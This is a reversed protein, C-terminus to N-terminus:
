ISAHGTAPHYTFGDSLANAIIAKINNCRYRIKLRDIHKLITGYALNLETAIDRYAFSKHCVKAGTASTAFCTQKKHEQENYYFKSSFHFM